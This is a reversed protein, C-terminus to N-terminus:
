AAMDLLIINKRLHTSYDHGELHTFGQIPSNDVTVSTKVVRATTMKLALTLQSVKMLQHYQM